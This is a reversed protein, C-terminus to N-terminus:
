HWNLDIWDIGRGNIEARIAAGRAVLEPVKQDHMEVFVCGIELPPSAKLLRELIDIETGEVDIKVLEIKKGFSQLFAVLDVVEVEVSTMPDVCQYSPLLSSGTAFRVPDSASRRDLYLLDVKSEAGVAKNICAVNARGAFREKLVAFAHPNPEFAYVSAGTAAIKATYKGVNAGCDVAVDGARIRRLHKRFRALAPRKRPFLIPRLLSRVRRALSKKM